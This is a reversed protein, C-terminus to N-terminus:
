RAGDTTDAHRACAREVRGGELRRDRTGVARADCAYCRDLDAERTRGVFMQKVTGHMSLQVPKRNFRGLPERAVDREARREFDWHSDDSGGRAM